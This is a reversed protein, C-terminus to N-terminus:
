PLDAKEKSGRPVRKVGVQEGPTTDALRRYEASGARARPRGPAAAARGTRTKAQYGVAKGTRGKYGVARASRTRVESGARKRGRGGFMRSMFGPGGKAKYAQARRLGFLAHRVEPSDEKYGARRWMDGTATWWKVLDVREQPKDSSKMAFASNVGLFSLSMLALLYLQKNM